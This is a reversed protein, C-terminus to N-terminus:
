SIFFFFDFVEGDVTAGAGGCFGICVFVAKSEYGKVLLM